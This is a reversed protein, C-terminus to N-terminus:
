LFFLMATGGIIGLIVLVDWPDYHLRGDPTRMM